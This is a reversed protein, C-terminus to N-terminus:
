GLEQGHHLQHAKRGAMATCAQLFCCFWRCVALFIILATCIWSPDRESSRSRTTCSTNIAFLRATIRRILLPWQPFRLITPTWNLPKSNNPLTGQLKRAALNKELLARRKPLLRLKRQKTALRPIMAASTRLTRTEAALLSELNPTTLYESSVAWSIKLM